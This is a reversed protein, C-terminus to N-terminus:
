SFGDFYRTSVLITLSPEKRYMKSEMLYTIYASVVEYDTEV